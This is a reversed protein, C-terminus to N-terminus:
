SFRGNGSPLVACHSPPTTDKSVHMVAIDQVLCDLYNDHSDDVKGLRFDAFGWQGSVVPYRSDGMDMKGPRFDLISRVGTCLINCCKCGTHGIIKALLSRLFLSTPSKFQLSDDM